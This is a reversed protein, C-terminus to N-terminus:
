GPRSPVYLASANSRGPGLAFPGGRREGSFREGNVEAEFAGDQPVLVMERGDTELFVGASTLQLLGFGLIELPTEKLLPNLLLGSPRGDCHILPNVENRELRAAYKNITSEM